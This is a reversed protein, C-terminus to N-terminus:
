TWTWLLAKGRHEEYATVAAKQVRKRTLSAGARVYMYMRVYIEEPHALFTRVIPVAGYLRYLTRRQRPSARRAHGPGQKAM